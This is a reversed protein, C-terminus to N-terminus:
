LVGKKTLYVASSYGVVLFIGQLVIGWTTPTRCKVANEGFGSIISGTFADSVVVMFIIFLMFLLKYDVSQLVPSAAPPAPRKLPTYDGM